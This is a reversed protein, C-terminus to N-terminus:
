LAARGRFLTREGCSPNSEIILTIQQDTEPLSVQAGLSTGSRSCSAHFAARLASLFSNTPLAILTPSISTLTARLNGRFLATIICARTPGERLNM